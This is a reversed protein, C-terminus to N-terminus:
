QTIIKRWCIQIVTYIFREKDILIEKM